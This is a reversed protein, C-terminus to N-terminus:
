KKKKIFLIAVITIAIGVLVVVINIIVLTNDGTKPSVPKEVTKHTTTTTVPTDPTSPTDPNQPTTVINPTDPTVPEEPTSPVNPTIPKEPTEPVDPTEPKEPKDPQEPETPEEPKSPKEPETPEEPETSPKEPETPEEPEIPKEPVNPVNPTVTVQHLEGNNGAVNSIIQGNLNGAAQYVTANPAVVIGCMEENFTINGSYNGFNWIIYSSLVNFDTSVNTNATFCKLINIDTVSSDSFIVNVVVRTGSNNNILNGFAGENNLLQKYNVNIIVVDGSTLVKNELMSNVSEFSNKSDGYFSSDVGNELAKGAQSIKDLTSSIENNKVLTDEASLQEVAINNSYGGNIITQNDNPKSVSIESGLVIKENDSLQIPSTSSGVYSYDGTKKEGVRTLVFNSSTTVRSVCVNGEIHNTRDINNAYVVFGETKKISNLLSHVKSADSTSLSSGTVDVYKSSATSTGGSSDVSTAFVSQTILFLVLLFTSSLIAIHQKKM